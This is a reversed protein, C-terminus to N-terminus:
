IKMKKTTTKTESLRKSLSENLQLASIEALFATNKLNEIANESINLQMTGLKGDIYQSYLEKFVRNGHSDSKDIPQAYRNELFFGVNWRSECMNNIIKEFIFLKEKQTFVNEERLIIPNTIFFQHDLIEKFITDTLRSKFGGDRRWTKDLFDNIEKAQEENLRENSDKILKEVDLNTISQFCYKGSGYNKYSYNLLGSTTNSYGGKRNTIKIVLDFLNTNDELVETMDSITLNNIIKERFSSNTKGTNGSGAWQRFPNLQFHKFASELLEIGYREATIEELNEDLEKVEYKDKWIKTNSLIPVLLDKNLLQNYNKLVLKQVEESTSKIKLEKCVGKLISTDKSSFTAELMKIKQEKSLEPLKKVIQSLLGPTRSDNKTTITSLQKQMYSLFHEYEADSNDINNESIQKKMEWYLDRMEPNKEILTLLDTGSPTKDYNLGFDTATKISSKHGRQFLLELVPWGDKELKRVYEKGLEKLGNNILDDKAYLLIMCLIEPIHEPNNANLRYGLEEYKTYEKKLSYGNKSILKYFNEYFEKSYNKKLFSSLISLGEKDRSSVDSKFEENNTQSYNEILLYPNNNLLSTIKESQM